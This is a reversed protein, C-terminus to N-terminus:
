FKLLELTEFLVQDSIKESYANTSAEKEDLAGFYSEALDIPPNDILFILRKQEEFNINSESLQSKLKSIFNNKDTDSKIKSIYNLIIYAAKYSHNAINIFMHYSQEGTKICTGIKNSKNKVAIYSLVGIDALFMLIANVENKNLNDFNTNLLFNFNSAFIPKLYDYTDENKQYAQDEERTVIYFYTKFFDYIDTKNKIVQALSKSFSIEMLSDSLSNKTEYFHKEIFSFVDQLQFNEAVIRLFNPVFSKDIINDYLAIDGFLHKYLCIGCIATLAKYKDESSKIDILAHEKNKIKSILEEWINDLEKTKFDALQIYPVIICYNSDNPLEYKRIIISQIFKYQVNFNYSYYVPYNEFESYTELKKFDIAIENLGQSNYLKANETKIGYIYSTYCQGRFHLYKVIANSLKRWDPSLMEKICLYKKGVSNFYFDPIEINRIAVLTDIKEPSFSNIIKHLRYVAHGHIMVDDLLLISKNNFLDGVIKIRQSSIIREVIQSLINNEQEDFTNIFNTDTYLAFFLCFCRRTTLIIYDYENTKYLQIIKKFFQKGIKNIEYCSNNM